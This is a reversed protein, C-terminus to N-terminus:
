VQGHEALVMFFRLSRTSRLTGEAGAAWIPRRRTCRGDRAARTTLAQPCLGARSVHSGYKLIESSRIMERFLVSWVECYRRAAGGGGSLARERGSWGDGRGCLIAALDGARRVMQRDQRQRGLAGAAPM